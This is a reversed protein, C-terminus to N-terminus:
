AGGSIEVHAGIAAALEGTWYSFHEEVLFAFGTGPGTKFSARHCLEMEIKCQTMRAELSRLIAARMQEDLKTM